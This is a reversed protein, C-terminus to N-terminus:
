VDTNPDQLEKHECTVELPELGSDRPLVRARLEPDQSLLQLEQARQRLMTDLSSSYTESVEQAVSVGAAGECLKTMAVLVWCKTESSTSKMDLLKALLRMVAAPELGEKLHSYEGLVQARCLLPLAQTVDSCLM